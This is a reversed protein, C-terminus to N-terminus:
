QKSRLLSSFLGLYNAGMEEATYSSLYKKYAAGALRERADFASAVAVVLQGINDLEFYQVEEETFIELFAPIKSCVIAKSHAAAELMALPLGESRSPMAYLDFYELYAQAHHKFGLFFCRESIQLEEALQRLDNLAPGDGIVILAWGPLKVLAHLLQDIGKRPTLLACCGIVKYTEKIASIKSIEDADMLYPAAPTRGNYIVRTTRGPM